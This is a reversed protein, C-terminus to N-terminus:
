SKTKEGPALLPSHPQHCTKCAEGGSHEATVVQPFSKPKALNGEHCRACLVKTDPLVPTVSGPDDAHTALPGHCGECNVGAHKGMKKVDLVDPHCQECAQHGAYHIPKASLEALAGGRYHGYQGFSKPIFHARVLLFIVLVIASAVALRVIHEADKFTALSVGHLGGSPQQAAEQALSFYTMVPFDETVISVCCHSTSGSRAIIEVGDAVETSNGSTLHTRPKLTIWPFVDAGTLAAGPRPAPRSSRANRAPTSASSM